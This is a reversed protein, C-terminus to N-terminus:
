ILFLCNILIFIARFKQSLYMNRPLKILIRLINNVLITPQGLNATKESYDRSM